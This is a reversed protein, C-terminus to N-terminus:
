IHILSLFSGSTNLLSDYGTHELISLFTSLDGQERIQTTIKGKMWEPSQYKDMDTFDKTCGCLAMLFVLARLLYSSRYVFLKKM